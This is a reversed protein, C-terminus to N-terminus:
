IALQVKKKLVASRLTREENLYSKPDIVLDVGTLAATWDTAYDIVQDAGLSRVLDFNHPGCTTIVQMNLVYKCYQIAMSGVGGSGAQVLVIKGATDGKHYAEFNKLGQIVTLGVLPLAACYMHPQIELPAAAVMTEDVVIFEAAAGWANLIPMMGFVPAGTVFRSEPCQGIDVVYGFYDSGIIKPLPLVTPSIRYSRLKVDVPNISTAVVRIMIQGNKPIPKYVFEETIVETGGHRNYLIARM